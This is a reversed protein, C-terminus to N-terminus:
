RRLHTALACTSPSRPGAPPAHSPAHVCMRDVRREVSAADATDLESQLESMRNLAQQMAEPDEGADALAQECKAYEEELAQVKAFASLFEEKLTRSDRLDERFEQRLFAIKIDPSSKILEGADLKPPLARSNLSLLVDGVAVGARRATPAARAVVVRLGRDDNALAM